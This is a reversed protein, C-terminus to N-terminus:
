DTREIQYNIMVEYCEDTMFLRWKKALRKIEQEKAEKYAQFAEEPTYFSGLFRQKGEVWCQARFKGDKKRCSVGIPYKGRISNSKTFLLNIEKPVFCCTEPSYIKNGKILIDKDLEFNEV